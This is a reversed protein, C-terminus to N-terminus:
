RLARSKSREALSPTRTPAPGRPSEILIGALLDAVFAHGAVNLHTDDRWWLLQRNEYQRRAETIFDARSDYFRMAHEDALEEIALSFGSRHPSDSWPERQEVMWAYVEEKAPLVIVQVALEHDAAFQQLAAFAQKLLPYNGHRVVEAHGLSCDSINPQYFLIPQHSQPDDVALVNAAGPASTDRWRRLYERVPSRRMCNRLAITLRRSWSSWGLQAPDVPGYRDTLDNGSYLAWLIVGGPRLKLRSAYARLLVLESWPSAASISLNYISLGTHDALRAAFLENDAVGAGAGFSDGLVIMDIPKDVRAPDNRFGHRDTRFRVRRTERQEPRAAMAALDGYVEGDFCALPRYINIEPLPPWQELFTMEPRFHLRPGVVWRLAIDTVPLVIAVATVALLVQLATSQRRRALCVAIAIVLLLGGAYIQVNRTTFLGLLCTAVLGALSLAVFAPILRSRRM